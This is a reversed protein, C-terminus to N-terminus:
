EKPAALRQPLVRDSIEGVKTFILGIKKCAAGVLYAVSLPKSSPILRLVFEVVVAIMGAQGQVSSLYAIVQDFITM